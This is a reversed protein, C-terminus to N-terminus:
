AVGQTGARSDARAQLCVIDAGYDEFLGKFSGYKLVSNRVTPAQLLAGTAASSPSAAEQELEELGAAWM